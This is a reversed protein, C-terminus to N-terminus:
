GIWFAQLIGNKNRVNTKCWFFYIDTKLCFMLSYCYFVLCNIIMKHILSMTYYILFM